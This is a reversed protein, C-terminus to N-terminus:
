CEEAIVALLTPLPRRPTLGGATVFTAFASCVTLPSRGPGAAALVAALAVPSRALGQFLHLAAVLEPEHLALAGCKAPGDEGDLAVLPFGRAAESLLAFPERGLLPLAAACLEALEEQDFVARPRDGELSEWARLM